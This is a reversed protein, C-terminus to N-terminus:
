THHNKLFGDRALNKIPPFHFVIKHYLNQLIEFEIKMGHLDVLQELLKLQRFICDNQSKYKEVSM